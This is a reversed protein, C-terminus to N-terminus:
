DSSRPDKTSASLVARALKSVARAADGSLQQGKMSVIPAYAEHEKDTLEVVAGIDYGTAEFKELISELIDAKEASERWDPHGAVVENNHEKLGYPQRSGDRATVEVLKPIVVYRM